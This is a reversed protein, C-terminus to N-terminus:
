RRYWRARKTLFRDVAERVETTAVTREWPTLSGDVYIMQFSLRDFDYELRLHPNQFVYTSPGLVIDHMSTAGCLGAKVFDSRALYSTLDALPLFASNNRALEAFLTEIDAWPRATERDPFSSLGRGIKSTM